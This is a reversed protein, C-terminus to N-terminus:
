TFVGAVDDALDEADRYEARKVGGCSTVIEAMRHLPRQMASLYSAQEALLPLADLLDVPELRARSTGSRELLWLAALRETGQAELLGFDAPARQAKIGRHGLSLPKPLGMIRLDSTILVTEDSLYRRGKGHAQVWTTKGAGSRGVVALAAGSAADAIAAAHLMLADGGRADIAALTIDQSLLHMGTKIDAGRWHVERAAPETSDALCHHWARVIEDRLTADVDDPLCVDVRVDLVDVGVRM